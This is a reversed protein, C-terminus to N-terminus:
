SFENGKQLPTLIVEYLKESLQIMNSVRLNLMLNLMPLVSLLVHNSQKTPKTDNVDFLFLLLFILRSQRVFTPAVVPFCIRSKDLTQALRGM